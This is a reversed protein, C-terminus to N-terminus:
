EKPLQEPVQSQKLVDQMQQNNYQKHRQYVGENVTSLGLSTKRELGFLDGKDPNM